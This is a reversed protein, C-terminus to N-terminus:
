KGGNPKYVGKEILVREIEEFPILEKMQSLFKTSKKGGQYRMVYDFFSPQEM